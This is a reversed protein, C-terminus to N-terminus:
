RPAKLDKPKVIKPSNLEKKNNALLLLNCLDWLPYKKNVEIAIVRTKFVKDIVDRPFLESYHYNSTFIWPEGSTMPQTHQHRRPLVAPLLAGAAEFIEVSLGNDITEKKVGDIAYCTARRPVFKEWWGHEPKLIEIKQLTSLVNTVLTTKGVSSDKGYIWIVAEGKDADHNVFNPMYWGDIFTDIIDDGYDGNKFRRRLSEPIARSKIRLPERKAAIYIEYARWAKANNILEGHFIMNEDCTEIDEYSFGAKFLTRLKDRTGAVKKKTNGISPKKKSYKAPIESVEDATEDDDVVIDEVADDAGVDEKKDDKHEETPITPKSIFDPTDPDLPNDSSGIATLDIFDTGDNRRIISSGAGVASLISSSSTIINSSATAVADHINARWNIYVDVCAKSNTIKTKGVRGQFWFEKENQCIEICGANTVSGLCYDLFNM